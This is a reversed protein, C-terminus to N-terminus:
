QAPVDVGFWRKAARALGSLDPESDSTAWAVFGDPRILIGTLHTAETPNGTVVHIASSAGDLPKAISGDRTFDLLLPRGDHTHQAIRTTAGVADTFTLNPVWQGVAPHDGDDRPYQVASILTLEALRDAVAPQTVLDGLVQRLATVEPGPRLLAFQARSAMIACDAAVRRETDYTDLVDSEVDGRLVAALKWGLNAADQLGLNLGPGGMPSQVHAADGVLLVRDKRFHEAILTNMGAYRRLDVDAEAGTAELPMDVGLVRHLSERLETLTLPDGFGPHEAGPTYTDDPADALEMTGIMSVGAAPNAGGFDVLMGTGARQFLFAPKGELEPARLQGTTPDRWEPPPAIGRGIRLIVDRSSMGIFRIGAIKRTGGRGGDAGVFYASEMTYTGDPGEIEATVRDPAFSLATLSHGWRVDVGLEIAREALTKTVVPQPVPMLYNQPRHVADVPSTIAAFMWIPTTQPGETSGTMRQYLGRHDLLRVAPGGVGTARPDQNPGPLREVVVTRAVGQLALECALMLGSPGAGAIVVDAATM